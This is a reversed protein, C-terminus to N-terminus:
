NLSNYYRVIKEIDLRKSFSLKESKVFQAVESKKDAMIEYLENGKKDILSYVNDKKLLYSEKILIKENAPPYGLTANTKNPPIIEVYYKVFLSIKGEILIELLSSSKFKEPNENIFSFKKNEMNLSLISDPNTIEYDLGKVRFFLINRYVNYRYELDNIVVGGKLTIVGPSFNKTLWPSGDKGPEREFLEVKNYGPPFDHIRIQASLNLPSCIIILVFFFLNKKLKLKIIEM